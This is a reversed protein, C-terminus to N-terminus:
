MKSYPPNYWVIRRKRKRCPLASTSQDEYNVKFNYGSKDIAEQYPKKAKIFTEENASISSIRQNISLPLNKIIAPPHNSQCHVYQPVDNEKMYPKYTCNSLDLTVDLFNISKKNAEITIRLDNESFVKCIKKKLVEVQRSIASSM